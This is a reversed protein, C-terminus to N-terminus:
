PSVGLLRIVLTVDTSTKIAVSGYFKGASTPSFNVALICSGTPAVLDCGSLVAGFPGTVTTVQAGWPEGATNNLVAYDTESSTNVGTRFNLLRGQPLAFTITGAVAQQAAREAADKDILTQAALATVPKRLQYTGPFPPNGVLTSPQCNSAFGAGAQRMGQSLGALEDANKLVTSICLVTKAGETAAFQVTRDARDVPKLKYVSFISSAQAPPEVAAVADGADYQATTAQLQYAAWVREYRAFVNATDGRLKVEASSMVQAQALSTLALMGALLAIKKM